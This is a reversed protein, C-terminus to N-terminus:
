SIEINDTSIYGNDVMEYVIMLKLDPKKLPQKYIDSMTTCRDLVGINQYTDSLANVENECGASM